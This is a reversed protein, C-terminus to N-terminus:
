CQFHLSDCWLLTSQPLLSTKFMNAVAPRFPTQSWVLLALKNSAGEFAVDEDNGQYNLMVIRGDKMRELWDSLLLSRVSAAKMSRLFTTLALMPPMMRM